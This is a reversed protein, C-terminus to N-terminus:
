EAILNNYDNQAVRWEFCRDAVDDPSVQLAIIYQTYKIKLNTYTTLLQAAGTTGTPLNSLRETLYASFDTKLKTFYNNKVETTANSAYLNEVFYYVLLEYTRENNKSSLVLAYSDEYKGLKLLNVVVTSTIYENTGYLLGVNKAQLKGSEYASIVSSDMNYCFDNYNELGQLKNIYDNQKKYEQANGLKVVLNYLDTTDKNRAYLLEYCSIEAREWGFQNCVGASFRPNVVYFGLAAFTVIILIIAITKLVNKAIEKAINVKKDM